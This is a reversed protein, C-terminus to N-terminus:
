MIVFVMFECAWACTGTTRVDWCCSTTECACDIPWVQRRWMALCKTPPFSSCPTTMALSYKNMRWLKFQAKLSPVWDQPTIYPSPFALYLLYSYWETWEATWIRVIIGSQSFWNYRYKTYSSNFDGHVQMDTQPNLFCDSDTWQQSLWWVFVLHSKEFDYKATPCSRTYNLCGDGVIFKDM